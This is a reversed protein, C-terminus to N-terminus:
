GKNAIGTRAMADAYTMRPIPRPVDYHAIESWARAVVEEPEVRQGQRVIVEGAYPLRREIRALASSILPPTGAPVYLSMPLKSRSLEVYGIM